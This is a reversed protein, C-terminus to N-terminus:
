LINKWPNPQNGQMRPGKLMNDYWALGVTYNALFVPFAGYPTVIDNRLVKEFAIPQVGAANAYDPINEGGNTVDNVIIL